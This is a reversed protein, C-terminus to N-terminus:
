GGGPPAHRCVCVYCSGPLDCLQPLSLLWAGLPTELNELLFTHKDGVNINGGLEAAPFTQPSYACVLFRSPESTKASSFFYFFIFAVILPM